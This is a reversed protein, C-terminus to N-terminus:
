LCLSVSSVCLSSFLSTFANDNQAYERLIQGPIGLGSGERIREPHCTALSKGGREERHKRQTKTDRTLAALPHRM